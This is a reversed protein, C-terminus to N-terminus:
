KHEVWTEVLFELFEFPKTKNQKEITSMNYEFGDGWLATESCVTKFRIYITVFFVKLNQRCQMTPAQKTCAAIVLDNGVM